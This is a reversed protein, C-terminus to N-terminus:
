LSQHRDNSQGHQITTCTRGPYEQHFGPPGQAPLDPLRFLAHGGNGSMAKIPKPFHLNEIVWQSVTDRLTLAEQLEIDSSSIGSPRVPDFDLPLWRYVLVNNDSTTLGGVKFRNFARALLRPDIVQLTFYIGDHRLTEGNKIAKCFAEFDDFYGSITGRVHKGDLTGEAHPIRIEVVEGPKIFTEFVHKDFLTLHKDQTIGM